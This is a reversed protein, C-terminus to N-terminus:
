VLAARAPKLPQASLKDVQEHGIRLQDVRAPRARAEVTAAVQQVIDQGPIIQVQRFHQDARFARQINVSAVNRVIGSGALRLRTSSPKLLRSAARGGGLLNHRAIGGGTLEHIATEHRQRPLSARFHLRRAAM